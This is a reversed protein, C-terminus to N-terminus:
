GVITDTSHLPKELPATTQLVCETPNNGILCTQARLEENQLYWFKVQEQIGALSVSVSANFVKVQLVRDSSM